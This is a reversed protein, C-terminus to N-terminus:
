LITWRMVRLVRLLLKNILLNQNPLAQVKKLRSLGQILKIFVLAKSFWALMRFYRRLKAVANRVSPLQLILFPNFRRLNMAANPAPMSM